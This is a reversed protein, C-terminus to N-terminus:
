AGNGLTPALVALQNAGAMFTGFELVQLGASGAHERIEAEGLLPHHEESALRSFIGLRAGLDYVAKSSPHPTTLFLRGGDGVFARLARLYEAPEDVHEIVAMSVVTDFREGEPLRSTFRHSPYRARAVELTSEDIDFGLYRDPPVEAALGGPGCGHDLVRGRVHPLAAKVRRRIL